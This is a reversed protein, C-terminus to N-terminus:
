ETSTILGAARTAPITTPASVFEDLTHVFYTHLQSKRMDIMAGALLQGMKDDLYFTHQLVLHVTRQMASSSSVFGDQM